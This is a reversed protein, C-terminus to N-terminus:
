GHDGHCQWPLCGLLESFIQLLDIMLVATVEREEDEIAGLHVQTVWQVRFM